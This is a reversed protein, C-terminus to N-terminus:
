AAELATIRTTLATIIAQQEQIAKILPIIFMERSVVQSGDGAEGWGEFTSINEADLAAKVEQAILGHMVTTTDKVNEEAYDSFTTPLENNPKWQYTVTRLRNIFSLGLTDNQINQKKNVDSSFTWTASTSYDAYIKGVGNSGLTIKFNGGIGAVGYGIVIEGTPAVVSGTANYGLYTNNSGTTVNSGAGYGVATNNSATTNSTLAAEGIATNQGGITNTSLASNGVAVNSAGTTTNRAANGGVAVLYGGTSANAAFSGVATVQPGSTNTALASAGVATNTAVAGAGRGVRVGNITTDAAQTDGGPSTVGLSGDIIITM